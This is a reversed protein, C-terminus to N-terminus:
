FTSPRLNPKRSSSDRLLSQLMLSEIEVLAVALDCLMQGAIHLPHLDGYLNPPRRCALARRASNVEKRIHRDFIVVQGM